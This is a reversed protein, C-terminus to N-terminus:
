RWKGDTSRQIITQRKEGDQSCTKSQGDAM